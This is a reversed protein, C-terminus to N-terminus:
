IGRLVIHRVTKNMNPSMDNGPFNAESQRNRKTKIANIVSIIRTILSVIVVPDIVEPNDSSANKVFETITNEDASEFLVEETQLQEGILRYVHGFLADDNLM